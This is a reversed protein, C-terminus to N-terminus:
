SLFEEIFPIISDLAKLFKEGKPTLYHQKPKKYYYPVPANSNETRSIIGKKELIDLYEILSVKPYDLKQHLKNTTIGPNEKITKLTEHLRLLTVFPWELRTGM